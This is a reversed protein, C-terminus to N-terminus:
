EFVPAGNFNPKKECNPCYPVTEYKCDGGGAGPMERFHVPHAVNAGLIKAGCTTCKYGDGDKTYNSLDGPERKDNEPKELLSPKVKTIYGDFVLFSETKENPYLRTLAKDVDADDDYPGYIIGDYHQRSDVGDTTQMSIRVFFKM